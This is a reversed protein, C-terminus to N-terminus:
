TLSIKQILALLKESWNRKAKAFNKIAENYRLHDEKKIVSAVGQSGIPAPFISYGRAGRSVWRRLYNDVPSFIRDSKRVFDAAGARSWVIACTTMPFYHARLLRSGTGAIPGLIRSIKQHSRGVNILQWDADRDRLMEIAKAVTGMAHENVRADDELVVAYDDSSDLLLQAAKLHSLYCGIEGGTLARGMYSLAGRHHYKDFEQPQRGRGDVAPCIDYALAQSELRAKLKVVREGDANLTIIYIRPVVRAM